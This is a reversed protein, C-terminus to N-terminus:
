VKKLCAYEAVMWKVGYNQFAVQFCSQKGSGKFNIVTGQGFKAHHVRQGVTFINNINNAINKNKVNLLYNADNLNIEKLCESPIESIFRSPYHCIKKGYLRRTAAYTLTLKKMARTVGVYALRREEELHGMEDLSMQNPFMGEEMGVIFVLSFELGKAAHLTMLQVADQWQDPQNEDAELSVYSLFAQLPTLSNDQDEYIFQRTATVLEKLNEIRTKSHDEKDKEYMLWLGSDKIVRNTQVYLPVNKTETALTDILKCFRYLKIAVHTCLVKSQLLEFTAQWLTIKEEQAKQRIISLTRNGIGRMPTNIIREFATDDYRNAILRLYALVDKIEQREFFRMGSYIRYPVRSKLLYEELVRSQANSRYLISCHALQNGDKRWEQICKVVFRAEELENLACYLSIAEGENSNTWLKKGLRLNNKSILSNAAKLINNTSRYNQELRIIIADSFDELFKKINKIQAGRWSYISQDDDGVITIHGTNGVLMRIWAYQINNTDQFEDVLINSFREQYNNLINPKNLWLEYSRLLLESFDVLGSRDCTEQYFQYILLWTKEITQGHKEIDHPRIGEDKKSNIYRIVQKASWKKEDLNMNKILRKTLRLQDEDDLIQFHQPLNADRYHLRLLRHALGHFTGIWMNKQNGNVLRNIRQRMEAAAKNTFTVALISCPSYKEVLLLWAIRHILVRTKGSGAGALVLLKSCKTVVAERQKDNLSDFLNLVNM